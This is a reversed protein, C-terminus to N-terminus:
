LNVTGGDIILEEGSVFGAEDSSLYLIAAAVEEPKGLRQMPITSAIGDRMEQPIAFTAAMRETDVPGPCVCNVRIGKPLLELALARGLGRVAAKNAAYLTGGQPVPKLHASSTMLVISGGESMVPLAAQVTLMTGKVNIDFMKDIVPVTVEEFPIPMFLGVLCVLVDVKGVSKMLAQLDEAKTVDGQVTTVRESNLTQKSDALAAEDIGFLTVDAGHALFQEATAVGIGGAGGALVVNKGTFDFM